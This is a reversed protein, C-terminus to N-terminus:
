GRWFEFWYGATALALETANEAVGHQDVSTGRKARRFAPGGGRGM